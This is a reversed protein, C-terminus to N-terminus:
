DWLAGYWKVFLDMGEKTTAELEAEAAKDKFDYDLNAITEHAEFGLAMKELIGAWEESTSESPYSHGDKLARLAAPMWTTLYTDLSFLDERAYGYLGREVFSRCEAYLSKPLHKWAIDNRYIKFIYFPKFIMKRDTVLTRRKSSAKKSPM